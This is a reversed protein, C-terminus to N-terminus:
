AAMTVPDRGHNEHYGYLREARKRAAAADKLDDFWGLHKITGDVRIRAWWKRQVRHCSIGTISSRNDSRRPRNRGNVVATAERLNLLRNNRGDGDIHDIEAAPWAGTNMLCVVRHAHYTVGDICVRRYTLGNVRRNEAGAVDGASAGGRRDVRWTLLGAGPNYELLEKAREFTLADTLRPRRKTVDM